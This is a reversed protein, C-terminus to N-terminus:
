IKPEFIYWRAVRIPLIMSLQNKAAQERPRDSWVLVSELRAALHLGSADESTLLGDWIVEGPHHGDGYVTLVTNCLYLMGQHFKELDVGLLV